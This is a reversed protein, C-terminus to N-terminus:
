QPLISFWSNLPSCIGFFYLAGAPTLAITSPHLEISIQTPTKRRANALRINTHAPLYSLPRHTSKPM